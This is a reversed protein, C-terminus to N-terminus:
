GADMRDDHANEDIIMELKAAVYNYSLRTFIERKIHGCIHCM